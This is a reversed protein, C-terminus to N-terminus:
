FSFKTKTIRRETEDPYFKLKVNGNSQLKRKNAALFVFTSTKLQHNHYTKIDKWTYITAGTDILLDIEIHPASKTRTHDIKQQTHLTLTVGM